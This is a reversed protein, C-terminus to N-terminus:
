RFAGGAHGLKLSALSRLCVNDQPPINHFMLTHFVGDNLQHIARAPSPFHLKAAAFVFRAHSRYASRRCDFDGLLLNIADYLVLVLLLPGRQNETAFEFRRLQHINFRPVSRAWMAKSPIKLGLVYVLAALAIM